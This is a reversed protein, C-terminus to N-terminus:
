QRSNCHAFLLRRPAAHLPASSGAGAQAAGHPPETGPGAPTASSRMSLPREVAPRRPPCTVLVCCHLPDPPFRSVPLASPVTRLVADGKGHAAFEAPTQPRLSSRRRPPPSSALRPPQPWEQGPTPVAAAAPLARSRPRRRARPPAQARPLPPPQPAQTGSGRDPASCAPAATSAWARASSACSGAWACPSCSSPASRAQSCRQRGETSSQCARTRLAIKQWPKIRRTCWRTSLRRDLKSL